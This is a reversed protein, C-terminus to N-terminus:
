STQAAQSWNWCRLPLARSRDEHRQDYPRRGHLVSPQYRDAEDRELSLIAYSRRKVWAHENEVDSNGRTMQTHHNNLSSESPRYGVISVAFLCHLKGCRICFPESAQDAQLVPTCQASLSVTVCNARLREVREPRVPLHKMKRDLPVVVCDRVPPFIGPLRAAFGIPRAITPVPRM